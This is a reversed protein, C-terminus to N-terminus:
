GERTMYTHAVVSVIIIAGVISRFVDNPVGMLVLGQEVMSLLVMGLAAGVITGSGGALAVGGIVTAAVATLELGDGLLQNTSSRQAFLVVGALAALLGSIVFNIVKVRKVNVGQALAAAPNGGAALTWNGYRTRTLAITMAILLGIFWLTCMRLNGAPQTLENIPVIYGNLIEFLVPRTAPVYSISQGRLLANVVGRYALLTGLTAIFSPVGSSVVIVGNILGCLAGVALAILMAVLPPVDALLPFVFACGGLALVSGVSLDFEGSIMLFAVGVVVIGFVSAFTLVNSVVFLTLFNPASFSFLLFLLLVVVAVFTVQSRAVRHHWPISVNASHNDRNKSVITQM